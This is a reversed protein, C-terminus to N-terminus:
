LIKYNNGIPFAELFGIAMIVVLTTVAMIKVIITEQMIIEELIAEEM